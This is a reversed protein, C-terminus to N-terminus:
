VFGFLEDVKVGAVKVISELNLEPEHEILIGKSDLSLGLANWLGKEVKGANNQFMVKQCEYGSFPIRIGNNLM